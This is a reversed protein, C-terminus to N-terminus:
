FFFESKPFSKKLQLFANRRDQTRIDIGCGWLPMMLYGLAFCLAARPADSATRTPSSDIVNM